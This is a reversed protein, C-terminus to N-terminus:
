CGVWEQAESLQNNHFVKVPYPLIFGFIKTGIRIWQIDSVLALKDFDSWHQLGLKADEWIAKFDFGSFHSGLEYLLRIKKHIKSRTKLLQFLLQNIIM